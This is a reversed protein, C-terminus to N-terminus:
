NRLYIHIENLIIVVIYISM